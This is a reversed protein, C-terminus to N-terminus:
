EEGVAMRVQLQNTRSELLFDHFGTILEIGQHQCLPLQFWAVRHDTGTDPALIVENRQQSVPTWTSVSRCRRYEAYKASARARQISAVTGDRQCLRSDKDLGCMLDGNM